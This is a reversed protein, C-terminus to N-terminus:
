ALLDSAESHSGAVGAKPAVGNQREGEQRHVVHDHDVTREEGAVPKADIAKRAQVRRIIIGGTTAALKCEEAYPMDPVDYKALVAALDAHFEAAEQEDLPIGFRLSLGVSMLQTGISATGHVSAPDRPESEVEEPAEHLPQEFGSDPDAAQSTHTRPTNDRTEDNMATM